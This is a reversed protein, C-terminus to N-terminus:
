LSFRNSNKTRRQFSLLLLIDRFVSSLKFWAHCPEFSTESFYFIGGALKIRIFKKHLIYFSNSTKNLYTDPRCFLFKIKYTFAPKLPASLYTRIRYKAMPDAGYNFTYDCSLNTLIYKLTQCSLNSLQFEDFKFRGRNPRVFNPASKLNSSWILLRTM